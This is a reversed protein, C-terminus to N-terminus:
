PQRERPCLQDTPSSSTCCIRTTDTVSRLYFLDIVVTNRFLKKSSLFPIIVFVNVTSSTERDPPPSTNSVEDTFYPLGKELVEFDTAWLSRFGRPAANQRMGSM